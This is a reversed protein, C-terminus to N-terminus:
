EAEDTRAFVECDLRLGETDYEECALYSHRLSKRSSKKDAQELQASGM